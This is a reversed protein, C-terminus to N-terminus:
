DQKIFHGAYKQDGALLRYSVLGNPLGDTPLAITQRGTSFHYEKVSLARGDTGYLYLVVPADSSVDFEFNVQGHAPNPFLALGHAPNEPQGIELRLLRRELDSTAMSCDQVDPRLRLLGKLSPLGQKAKVVLYFLPSDADLGLGKNAFDLYAFRLLGDSMADWNFFDERLDPLAGDRVSLIEFYETPFSLAFSIAATNHALGPIYIPLEMVSGAEVARDPLQLALISQSRDETGEGGKMMANCDSCSGDVDAKKIGTFDQNPYDNALNLISIYENYNPYYYYQSTVPPFGGYVNAPPFTWSNWGYPPEFTGNMLQIINVVDGTTVTHDLNMDAAVVQYPYQLLSNGLVHQWALTWDLTNVGCDPNNTKTPAISYNFLENVTFAYSGDNLGVMTQNEQAPSCQVNSSLNVTVGTVAGDSGGSCNSQTISAKIITGSVSRAPFFDFPPMSLTADYFTGSNFDLVGNTNPGGAWGFFVYTGPSGVYYISFLTVPNTLTLTALDTVVLEIGASSINFINLNPALATNLSGGTLLQEVCQGNATSGNNLEVNVRLWYNGGDPIDHGNWVVDLRSYGFPHAPASQFTLTGPIPNQGIMDTSFLTLFFALILWTRPALHSTFNRMVLYKFVKM